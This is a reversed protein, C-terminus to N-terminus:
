FYCLSLRHAVTVPAVTVPAVTVPAVSVPAVSVPAVSVPAVLIEESEYAQTHLLCYALSSGADHLNSFLHMTLGLYICNRKIETGSVNYVRLPSWMCRDNVFDYHVNQFALGESQHHLLSPIIWCLYKFHMWSEEPVALSSGLLLGSLFSPADVPYLLCLRLNHLYLTKKPAHVKGSM